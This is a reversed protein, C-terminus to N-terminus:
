CAGEALAEADARRGTFRLAISFVRAEHQRMLQDFAALEGRQARTLCDDDSSVAPSHGTLPMAATKTDM